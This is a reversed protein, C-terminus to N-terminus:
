SFDVEEGGIIVRNGVKIGISKIWVEETPARVEYFVRITGIRLEWSAIPNPRLLKRNKTEVTPQHPLQEHITVLILSRQRATMKRLHERAAVSFILQYAM